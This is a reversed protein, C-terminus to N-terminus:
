VFVDLARHAAAPRSAGVVPEAAAVRATGAAREGRTPQRGERPLAGRGQDGAVDVSVDALELGQQHLRERLEEVGADLAQRAAAHDTLFTVKAVDGSLSLQVQVAQGDRDLTFEARQSKQHVWFAVQEGLQEMFSGSLGGDSGMGGAADSAGVGQQLPAPPVGTGGGSGAEGHAQGGGAADSRSPRAATAADAALPPASAMNHAAPAWAGSGGQRLPVRADGGPMKELVSKLLHSGVTTSSAGADADADAPVSFAAGDVDVAQAGARAAQPPLGSAQLAFRAGAMFGVGRRVGAKPSPSTAADIRTTEDIMSDSQPAQGMLAHRGQDLLINLSDQLSVQSRADDDDGHVDATATDCAPQGVGAAAGACQGGGADPTESADWADGPAPTELGVIQDDVAVTNAPDPTGAPLAVATPIADLAAVPQPCADDLAALLLAFGEKRQTAGDGAEPQDEHNAAVPAKPAAQPSAAPMRVQEM